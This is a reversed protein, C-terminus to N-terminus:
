MAEAVVSLTHNEFVSRLRLTFFPCDVLLADGSASRIWVPPEDAARVLSAGNEFRLVANSMNPGGQADGICLHDFRLTGDGRLDVTITRASGPGQISIIQAASVIEDLELSARRVFDKNRLTDLAEAAPLISLSAVVAVIMLRLPITEVANCDRRQPM